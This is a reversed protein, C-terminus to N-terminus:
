KAESDKELLVLFLWAEYGRGLDGVFGFSMGM